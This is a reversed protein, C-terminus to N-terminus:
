NEKIIENKNLIFYILNIKPKSKMPTKAPDHLFSSFVGSSSVVSGTNTVFIMVVLTSPCCVVRKYAYSPCFIFFMLSVESAPVVM